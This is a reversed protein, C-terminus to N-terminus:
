LGEPNQMLRAIEDLFRAGRRGDSVRHDAALTLTLTLRPLVADGVIWPRRVPAGFGAIAVQPPYIVGTLMDAGTEGMSSMTITGDTMESSRLRGVRAREVLDRMAAMLADLGLADTDRIAPTVLGGGRLSVALAVHVGESHRFAGDVYHGNMETVKRAALATARLFLAGMLLRADPARAANTKALWDTAPQLDITKALYYHPIERKSRAMAAAIAQRM